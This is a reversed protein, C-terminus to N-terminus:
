NEGTIRGSNFIFNVAEEWILTTFGKEKWFELVLFSLLTSRIVNKKKFLNWRKDVRVEVLM